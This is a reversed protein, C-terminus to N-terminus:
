SRAPITISPMGCGTPNSKNGVFSWRENREAEGARELDWAVEVLNLTRLVATNVSAVGAEQKKLERLVTNPCIPLSRATDHVGRANLSLDISTQKGELL